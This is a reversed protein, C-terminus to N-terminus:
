PMWSAPIKLNVNEYVRVDMVDKSVVLFNWLDDRGVFKVLVDPHVGVNKTVCALANESNYQISSIEDEELVFEPHVDEKRAHGIVPVFTHSLRYFYMGVHSTRDNFTSVEGSEKYVWIFAVSFKLLKKPYYALRSWRWFPIDKASLRSSPKDILDGKTIAGSKTRPTSSTTTGRRRKHSENESYDSDTDFVGPSTERVFTPEPIKELTKTVNTFSLPVSSAPIEFSFEASANAFSPIPTSPSPLRQVLKKSSKKSVKKTTSSKSTSQTVPERSRIPTSDSPRVTQRKTPPLEEESDSVVEIVVREKVQGRFSLVTVSVRARTHALLTTTTTQTPATVPKRSASLSQLKNSAQFQQRPAPTPTAPPELVGFQPKNSSPPTKEPTLLGHAAITTKTGYMEVTPRDFGIGTGRVNNMSTLVLPQKEISPPSQIAVMKDVEAIIDLLNKPHHAGGSLHRVIEALQLDQGQRKKKMNATYKEVRGDFERELQLFTEQLDGQENEELKILEILAEDRMVRAGDQALGFPISNQQRLRVAKQGRRIYHDFKMESVRHKNQEVIKGYELAMKKGFNSDDKLRSTRIAQLNKVLSRLYDLDM